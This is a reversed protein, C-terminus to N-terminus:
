YPYINYIYLKSYQIPYLTYGTPGQQKIKTLNFNNIMYRSIIDLALGPVTWAHTTECPKYKLFPLSTFM